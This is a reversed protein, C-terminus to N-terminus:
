ELNLRRKLIFYTVLYMATTRVASLALWIWLVTLLTGYEMQSRFMLRDFIPSGVSNFLANIAFFAIFSAATRFKNFVPLQGVSLSAYITLVLAVAALVCCSCFLAILGAGPRVGFLEEFMGYIARFFDMYQGNQANKFYSSSLLIVGSLGATLGGCFIWLLSAILKSAVLNGVGLPLTFMLYGESGLLNSYFRQILIVITTVAMAVLLGFLVLFGVITAADYNLKLLLANAFSVLVLAGYLPLFIRATAGLEYKLLKGLM